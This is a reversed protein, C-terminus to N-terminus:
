TYIIRFYGCDHAKMLNDVQSFESKIDEPIEDVCERIHETSFIDEELIRDKYVPMQQAIFGIFLKSFQGYHIDLVKAINELQISM